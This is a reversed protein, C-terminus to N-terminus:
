LLELLKPALTKAILEHGKPNPHLGDPLMLDSKSFFDDLFPILPIKQSAAVDEFVKEFAQRYERGYNPPLKMAVLVPKVGAAKARTIMETLNKKTAKTDQGRLGDNAGMEIVILTPKSKLVWELQRIGGASTWGANSANIVEVNKAAKRLREGVLHPFAEKQEVGYGDSISDGLFVIKQVVSKDRAELHHFCLLIAYLFLFYQM